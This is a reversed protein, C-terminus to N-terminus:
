PRYKAFQSKRMERFLSSRLFYVLTFFAYVPVYDVGLRYAVTISFALIIALFIHSVPLATM